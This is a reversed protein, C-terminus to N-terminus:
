EGKRAEAEAGDVPFFMPGGDTQQAGFSQLFAKGKDSTLWASLAQAGETNLNALKKPNAEMVVYPRRMAPDGEVLVEMNMAPIKGKLVPIRGVIVYAKKMAAFQVIEQPVATEDKLVWDGQPKVGSATWLKHSIERSGPGMFDVFPAKAEAVKKLAAAGDKMGRIGAPDSPPGMICHQNRAWPTMNIGFGDAVLNAAEDSAHMTLLDVSGKKLAEALVAKPGTVVTEVHWGTQKEFEKELEQWMGSLTMGGIVAVRVPPRPAADAASLISGSMLLALLTTQFPKM